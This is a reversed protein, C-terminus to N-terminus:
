NYLSEIIVFKTRVTRSLEIINATWLSLMADIDVSPLPEDLDIVMMTM